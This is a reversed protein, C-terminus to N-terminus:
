RVRARHLTRGNHVQGEYLQEVEGAGWTRRRAASPPPDSLSGMLTHRVLWAVECNGVSTFWCPTMKCGPVVAGKM